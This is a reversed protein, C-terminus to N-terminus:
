KKELSDTKEDIFKQLAKAEKEIKELLGLDSFHEKACEVCYFDNTGKISYEASNNCIVCKKTM